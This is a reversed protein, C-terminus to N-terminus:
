TLKIRPPYLVVNRSAGLFTLSGVAIDSENIHIPIDAGFLIQLSHWTARTIRHTQKSVAAIEMVEKESKAYVIGYWNVCDRSNTIWWSLGKFKAM